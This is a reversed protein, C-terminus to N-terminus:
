EGLDRAQAESGRRLAALARLHADGWRQCPELRHSESWENWSAIMAPRDPPAGSTDLLDLASAVAAAVAEPTNGEVVPTYPFGPRVGDWDRKGRPTADWGVAVSPLLPIALRAGLAEWDRRRAAALAAYDQRPPGNWDPWWVLSTLADLGVPALTDADSAANICGAVYLGGAAARMAEVADRAAPGLVAALRWAHFIALLPRGDVAIAAPHTLYPRVHRAMRVLDEAVFPFLRDVGEAARPQDMGVPLSVRPWVPCWMVGLGFGEPV